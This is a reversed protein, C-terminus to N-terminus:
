KILEQMLPRALRKAEPHPAGTTGQARLEFFHMWDSMFGTMVLESKTCLPLVARADQPTMGHEICALYADESAKCASYFAYDNKNNLDSGYWIPTIFTVGGFKEKGYNCYRTSEQAFSFVRHRTFERGVGMDLTFHVTIRKEHFPMPKCEYQRDELWGNEVLVRLNTTIYASMVDKKYNKYDYDIRWQSYENAAYKSIFKKCDDINETKYYLYITGHELMAYHKNAIMRDVFVKDTGEAIKDESKYCVRGAREIQKEPTEQEWIEYSPEIFNM